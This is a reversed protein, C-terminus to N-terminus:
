YIRGDATFKYDNVEITEEIAERTTLYEYNKQLDSLAESIKNDFREETMGNYGKDEVDGLVFIDLSFGCPCMM